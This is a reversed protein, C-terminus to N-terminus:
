DGINWNVSEDLFLMNDGMEITKNLLTWVPTKPM